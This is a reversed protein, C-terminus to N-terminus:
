WYDLPKSIKCLLLTTDSGHINWLGGSSMMGPSIISWYFVPDIFKAEKKRLVM